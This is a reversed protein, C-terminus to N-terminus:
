FTYRIRAGYTRPPQFEYTNWFSVYNRQANALVTQDTFNRVYGEIEWHRGAPAFTLSVNGTAYAPSQTDPTNFVTYYFSSSYKGDIRGTLKGAALDFVHQFGATMVFTPANPLENGGINHTVSAGDAVSINSGFATHLYTANADFRGVQDILGIFQAEVGYIKASGVNFVGNGSSVVASNQSAQYGTYDQYFADVNLQVHQDFFRNKSGVEIVKVNEPAYDVSPASGNSNFGGSKYGTDYKAYLLHGPAPTWDLGLHYTAKSDKLSGNSPETLIPPTGVCGVFGYAFSPIGAIDCRLQSTGTRMKTDETYRVGATLKLNSVIEFGAQGFVANSETKVHYPFYILDSGAYAGSNEQLFSTLVNDEDFHFFGVQGTLRQDQRTALRVEHNWTAPHEHQIFQSLAGPPPSTADLAHRWDELDYGGAYTLTLGMPLRDYSLEWRVRDGDLRNYTPQAAPFSSVNGLPTVTALPLQKSVDGVDNTHDHQYSVLGKLGEFPEFALQVRGSQTRDDDGRQGTGTLHRYGEHYLEVGSVRVQVKDGLPLNLAGETNVTDYNGVDAQVYGGFSKTPKQTIISVLGGTSNRGFLTGQPGKLVEIRDLDYLSSAINYSRNVFFGDRAIPVSPDGIETVDTSAIGRVAVYAAGNGSTVNISPDITQLDQVSTVGASELADKSYVTLAVATKQANTSVRNATVVVETLTTTKAPKADPAPTASQALAATAIPTLAAGLLLARLLNRNTM